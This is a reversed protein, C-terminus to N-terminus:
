LNWQIGLASASAKPNASSFNFKCSNPHHIEGNSSENISTKPQKWFILILISFRQKASFSITPKATSPTRPKATCPFRPQVAGSALKTTSLNTPQVIAIHTWARTATSWARPLGWVSVTTWLRWQERACYPIAGFVPGAQKGNRKEGCATSRQRRGQVFCM